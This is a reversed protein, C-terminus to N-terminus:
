YPFLVMTEVMAQEAGTEELGTADQAIRIKGMDTDPIEFAITSTFAIPDDPNLEESGELPELWSGSGYGEAVVEEGLTFITIPIIGEFFWSRPAVGTLELPSEITQRMKFNNLVVGQSLDLDSSEEMMDEKMMEEGMNENPPVMMDDDNKEMDMMEGPAPAPPMSGTEPQAPPQTCGVLLLCLALIFSANRM